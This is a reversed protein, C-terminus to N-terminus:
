SMMSNNLLTVGTKKWQIFAGLYFPPDSDAYKATMPRLFEKILQEYTLEQAPLLRATLYFPGYDQTFIRLSLSREETAFEPNQKAHGGDMKIVKRQSWQPVYINQESLSVNDWFM